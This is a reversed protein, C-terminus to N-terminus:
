FPIDQDYYKPKEDELRKQIELILIPFKALLEVLDNGAITTPLVKENHEGFDTITLTFRKNAM